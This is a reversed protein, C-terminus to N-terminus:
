ARGGAVAGLRPLETLILYLAYVGIAMFAVYPIGRLPQDALVSPLSRASGLAYAASGSAAAVNVTVHFMSPPTDERGFCGCSQLPVDRALAFVVFGAFGLYITAIMWGAVRGGVLLGYGGALIEIGGLSMVTLRSSPLSAAALAGQTPAPDRVKAFGAGALVAAVVFFWGEMHRGLM